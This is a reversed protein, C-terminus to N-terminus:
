ERKRPRVDKGAMFCIQVRQIDQLRSGLREPFRDLPENTSLITRMRELHRTDLITHFLDNAFSTQREAGLDDVVLIPVRKLWDVEAPYTDSKVALYIHNLLDPATFYVARQGAKMFEVVSAVLLHTKGMGKPGWLLIWPLEMDGMVFTKIAEYGKECGPNLTVDYQDLPFSDIISETLNSGRISTSGM